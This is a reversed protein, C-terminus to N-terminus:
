GTVCLDSQCKGFSLFAVSQMHVDVQSSGSREELPVQVKITTQACRFGVRVHGEVEVSM